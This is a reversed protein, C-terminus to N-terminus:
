RAEDAHFVVVAVRDGVLQELAADGDHGRVPDLDPGDVPHELVLALV